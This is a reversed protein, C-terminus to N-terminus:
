NVWKVKGTELNYVAPVVKLGTVDKLASDGSKKPSAFPM